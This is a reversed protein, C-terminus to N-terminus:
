VKEWNAGSINMTNSWALSPRTIDLCTLSTVFIVGIFCGRRGAIVYIHELSVALAPSPEAPSM